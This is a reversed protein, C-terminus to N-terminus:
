TGRGREYARTRIFNQVRNQVRAKKFQRLDL